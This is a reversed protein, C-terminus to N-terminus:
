RYMENFPLFDVMTGASLNTLDEPLEILGDAFVASTLIGAGDRGFKEAGLTGDPRASLRARLWERRGKKKRYDFGAPVRYHAPEVEACGGLRLILPRAFRLFTVMVAVPNGPLGVFPVRGVQGLAIPRGPRIALRWFHLHGLAEVAAKVHDEDGTSMGGSTLLLDHDHSREALAATITELDDPLIGMDTVACGLREALGAIVYRNSDYIGGEGLAAGPEYVEDGTSFIAVRLRRFVTLRTRGVSAALGVDQPRLAKGATLITTGPAIDEGANRRNAGRKIGPPVVVADGEARCDEQMLVTDPGPPMPAGTFVRIAEGRAAPRGLPHGAAARGTCSLRTDSEANLDDFFVAYGDVAANDHPPVARESVVTEALIRGNAARLDVTETEAIPHVVSELQALAEAAPTLAGGFAFCDDSLQAM